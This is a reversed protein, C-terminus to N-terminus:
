AALVCSNSRTMHSWLAILATFSLTFNCRLFLTLLIMSFYHTHANPYRLQNALANICHYRDESDFALMLQSFLTLAPSDDLDAMVSKSQSIASMGIYLVLANILPVNYATGARRVATLIEVESVQGTM